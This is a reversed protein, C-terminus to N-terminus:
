NQSFANQAHVLRQQYALRNWEDDSMMPIGYVPIQNINPHQQSAISKEAAYCLFDLQARMHNLIADMKEAPSKNEDVFFPESLRSM